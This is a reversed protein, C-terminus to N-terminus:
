DNEDVVKIGAIEGSYGSSSLVSTLNPSIYGLAEQIGPPTVPFYDFTVKVSVEYKTM